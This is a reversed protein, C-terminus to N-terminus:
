GEGETGVSDFRLASSGEGRGIRKRHAAWVWTSGDIWRTLQFHRTVHIGERPVEEDYLLLDTGSRLVRGQAAHVKRSGDPQLVAGRKLRQVRKGPALQLQVPLLPIWHAPVTTSLLYRAPAGDAGAPTAAADGSVTAPSEARAVPQETLSEISREIAWALNAMEDRMFLVDELAVGELSRGLAPPLFFLNAEAGPVGEAGPRRLYALQYMSWHPRPLAPDGIPRLLTRVGFSDTVVLSSVSTLSGVALTLPVVFWDNGYSGAYEIMLLQALDTPGVPLLGYDLRADELEWFRPAPAGRFTVPAPITTEVIARFGRDADTGLNVELDLDFSAWDLHGDYFEAATLAREGAQEASLRAAVSMAYEMRPAVWADEAAPESFLEDYWALWRAATLKVEARDAPAIQLSDDLALRGAGDRRIAEALRRADPARGIMTQVFRASPEDAGDLHRPEPAQLAFRAIFASRYSKSVPERELMRLFHLGAEVSLRLMRADGGDVARVPQREVMVELPAGRPDYAAALTRTNAPLEGLHCRSLPATGARVRALVPTGADEGQFEGVQWQRALLWLPDFLRASLSARMDADRCRSELRTWSTVSPRLTPDVPPQEPPPPPPPPPPPRPPRPPPEVPGEDGPKITIPPLREAAKRELPSAGPGSKRPKRPM